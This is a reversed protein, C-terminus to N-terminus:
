RRGGGRVGGGVGEGEGVSQRDGREDGQTEGLMVLGEGGAHLAQGQRAVQGSGGSQRTWAMGTKPRATTIDWLERTRGQRSMRRASLPPQWSGHQFNSRRRPRAPLRRRAPPCPSNGNRM